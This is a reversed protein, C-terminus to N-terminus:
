SIKKDVNKKCVWSQNLKIFYLILLAPGLVWAGYLFTKTFGSIAIMTGSSSEGATMGLNALSTLISYQTAGVKPNTIDMMLASIATYFGGHFFGIIGYLIALVLWTRTLIILATFFLVGIIVAYLVNKRGWKDCGTGAILAGIVKTGSWLTIILGIEAININFYFNMYLPIVIGLLGINLGGLLGLISVFVTNKKKFEQLLLLKLKQRKKVKRVDEVLLPYIIILLVLLATILFVYHYGYFYAISSLVSAAIVMGISQGAFMSGNVKGREEYKSIEIAWADASVDLLGIGCGGLFLFIAFLILFDSPDLLFLFFLSIASLFGGSIIFKRRGYKVFYDVLGGWIFKITMPTMYIAALLTLYQIPLGKEALYIPLILTAIIYQMGETFYLSGFLIYKLYSKRTIDIM